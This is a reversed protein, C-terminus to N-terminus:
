FEKMCVVCQLGTHLKYGLGYFSSDVEALYLRSVAPDKNNSSLKFVSKDLEEFDKELCIYETDHQDNLDSGALLGEYVKTFGAPCVTKAPYMMTDSAEVECVACSADRNNKANMKAQAGGSKDKKSSSYEVRTFHGNPSTRADNKQKAEIDGSQHMCQYNYGGGKDYTFGNAMWGSYVTKSGSPCARRGWTTYTTVDREPTAMCVACGVERYNKYGNAIPAKSMEVPVLRAANANRALLKGFSTGRAGVPADDVCVYEEIHNDQARGAFMMGKYQREYGTPCKQSGPITLVASSPVECVSCSADFYNVKRYTGGAPLSATYFDTVYLTASNVDRWGVKANYEPGRPLCQFDAGGGPENYRGNAMFGDYLMKSKDPCSNAGWRTYTSVATESTSSCQACTLEFNYKYGTFLGSTPLGTRSLETLYLLGKNNNNGNQGVNAQPTEFLCVFTQVKKKRANASALWGKYDKKYGVPCSERGAVMLQNPAKTKCVACAMDDFELLKGDATKGTGFKAGNWGSLDGMSRMEIPQISAGASDKSVMGGTAFPKESPLCIYNAPGGVKYAQGGGMAGSYVLESDGACAQRGWVTHISYFDKEAGDRECVVEGTKADVSAISSGAECAKIPAQAKVCTTTGDVKIVSTVEGAACAGTIEQQVKYDTCQLSGDEGVQVVVTGLPCAKKMNALQSEQSAIKQAYAAFAVRDEEESQTKFATLDAQLQKLQQASDREIAALRENLDYEGNDTQISFKTAGDFTVDGDPSAFVINGKVAQISAKSPDQAVALGVTVAAAAFFIKFM